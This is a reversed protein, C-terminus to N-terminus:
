LVLPFCQKNIKWLYRRKWRRPVNLFLNHIFLGLFYSRKSLITTKSLIKLNAFSSILLSLKGVRLLYSCLDLIHLTPIESVFWRILKEGQSSKQVNINRIGFLRLERRVEEGVNYINDKHSWLLLPTRLCEGLHALDLVLESCARARM